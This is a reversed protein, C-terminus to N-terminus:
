RPLRDRRSVALRGLWPVFRGVRAAYAAYAAGHTRLLYPEEVIRVQLELAVLLAALGAFAVVSPVMLVLGASAPLMAAFIPNRVIAFAGGTVMETTTSEDVGIRWSEGMSVQAALTGALGVIFLMTGAVHVATTDLSGIPEVVATLALLPAAFGVAIAVVFLVGALWEASGPRGSIGEFGSAGTRRLQIATRLGFALAMYLIYAALALTAM